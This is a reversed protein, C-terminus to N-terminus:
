KEKLWRDFFSLIAPINLEHVGDFLDLGLRDIAGAARYIRQLHRYAELGERAPFSSDYQGTQVLLARPCILGAVDAADGYKLLGPLTQSGCTGWDGGLVLQAISGLYGSICAASVRKDVASIYTTMTGGFSVGVCGIKERLVDTRSVLYDICRMGDWVDLGLMTFGFHAAALFALNCPDRPSGSRQPPESREGFARWDPTITVYGAQALKVSVSKHYDFFEKGQSNLGVLPNKGQGHGHCCLVAPFRKGRNRLAPSCVWAPVSMFKESDFVVKERVYTSFIKKNLVEAKLPVKEPLEGLGERVIAHFRKRWELWDSETRGSFRLLAKTAHYRRM